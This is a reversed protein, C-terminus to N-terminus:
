AESYEKIGDVTHKYLAEIQDIKEKVEEDSLKRENSPRFEETVASAANFLGMLGLNACVGKVAHASEFLETPDMTKGAAILRDVVGSTPFKRIHKDMLKEMRLVAIGKEYDGGIKAYLEQLTM